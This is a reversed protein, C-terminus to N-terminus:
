ENSTDRSFAVLDMGKKTNNTNAPINVVENNWDKGFGISIGQLENITFSKLVRLPFTSGLFVYKKCQFKYM